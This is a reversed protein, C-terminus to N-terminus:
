RLHKSLYMALLSCREGCSPFFLDMGTVFLRLCANQLLAKRGDNGELSGDFSARKSSLANGVGACSVRRVANNVLQQAEVQQPEPPELGNRTNDLM